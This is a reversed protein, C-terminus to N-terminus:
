RPTPGCPRRRREGVREARRDHQEHQREGPAGPRRTAGRPGASCGRARRAHHHQGRHRHRELEVHAELRRDGVVQGGREHVRRLRELRRVATVSRSAFSRRGDCSRRRRSRRRRLPRCPSRGPARVEGAVLAPEVRSAASAARRQAPADHQDVEPGVGADVADARQGVQHRPVPAVAVVPRVITPTWEGSNRELLFAPLTARRDLLVPM